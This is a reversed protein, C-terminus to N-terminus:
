ANDDEADVDREDAELLQLYFQAYKIMKRIDEADKGKRGHRYLYKWCNGIAFGKAREHGEMCCILDFCEIPGDTYHAPNNIIDNEEDTLDDKYSNVHKDYVRNLDENDILGSDLLVSFIYIEDGKATGDIMKNILDDHAGGHREFAEPNRELSFFYDVIMEAREKESKGNCQNVNEMIEKIEAMVWDFVANDNSM